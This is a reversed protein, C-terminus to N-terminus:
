RKKDLDARISRLEQSISESRRDFLMRGSNQTEYGKVRFTELEEKSASIMQCDRDEVECYSAVLRKFGEKTDSYDPIANLGCMRLEESREWPLTFLFRKKIKVKM